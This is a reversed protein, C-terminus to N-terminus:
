LFGIKDLSFDRILANNKILFKVGVWLVKKGIPVSFLTYISICPYSVTTHTVPHMLEIHMPEIHM